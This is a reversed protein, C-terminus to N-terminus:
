HFACPVTLQWNVDIFNVNKILDSNLGQITEITTCFDQALLYLTDGSVVTYLGNDNEKYGVCDRARVRCPVKISSGPTVDQIGNLNQIVGPNTCFDQAIVLLSDAQSVTYTGQGQVNPDPQCVRRQAAALGLFSAILITNLRM